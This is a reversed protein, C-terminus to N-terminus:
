SSLFARGSSQCCIRDAFGGSLYGEHRLDVPVHEQFIESEKERVPTTSSKRMNISRGEAAVCALIWRICQWGTFSIIETDTAARGM